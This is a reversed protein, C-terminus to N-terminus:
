TAAPGSRRRLRGLTRDLSALDLPREVIEDAGEARYRAEREPDSPTCVAIAVGPRRAKIHRILSAGDGDALPLDILAVDPALTQCVVEAHASGGAPMPVLGRSLLYESLLGRLDPQDEVLLVLPNPAPVDSM